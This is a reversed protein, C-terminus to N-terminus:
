VFTHTVSLYVCMGGVCRVTVISCLVLSSTTTYTLTGLVSHLQTPRKLVRLYNISVFVLQLFTLDDDLVGLRMFRFMITDYM